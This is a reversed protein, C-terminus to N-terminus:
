LGPETPLFRHERNWNLIHDRLELAHGYDLDRPLATMVVDWANRELDTANEEADREAAALEEAAGYVGADLISSQLDQLKDLVEDAKYQKKTSNEVDEIADALERGVNEWAMEFKLFNDSM